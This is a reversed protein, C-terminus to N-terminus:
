NRATGPANVDTSHDMRCDNLMLCFLVLLSASSRVQSSTLPMRHNILPTLPPPSTLVNSPHVARATAMQHRNAMMKLHQRMAHLIAQEKELQADCLLTIYFLVAFQLIICLAAQEELQLTVYHLTIHYLTNDYIVYSQSSRWNYHLM